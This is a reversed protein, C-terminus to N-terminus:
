AEEGLYYLAEVPSTVLLRYDNTMAEISLGVVIKDVRIPGGRRYVSGRLNATREGELYGGRMTGDSEVTYVSGSATVALVRAGGRKWFDNDLKL